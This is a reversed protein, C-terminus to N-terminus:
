RRSPTGQIGEDSFNKIRQENYNVFSHKDPRFMKEKRGTNSLIVM